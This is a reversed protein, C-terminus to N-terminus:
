QLKVRFFLQPSNTISTTFPKITGDGVLTAATQWNTGALNANTQVLYSPGVETPINLTLTTGSVGGNAITPSTALTLLANSSNTSDIGDGVLVRYYGQNASQFNTITLASNTIGSVNGATITNSNMQWLYNTVGTTTAVGVTLTASAGQAVARSAPQTLIAPPVPPSVSVSGDVALNNIWKVGAGSVSMAAGNKLASSFLVFRDGAALPAAPNLNTVIVKGVGINTLLGSVSVLDNSQGPSLAKNVEIVLNGAVTLGNNLTLTGISAGPALAGGVAVTVPGGIIGTGGLTGNTAVTVAGSGIQGNVQLTGASVTTPGTYTETNSLTLVNTGTKILGLGLGGDSIVGSVITGGTNDVQLTRNTGAGGGDNGQLTLAGSLTLNNTGSIILTLNNSGRLYQIPNAVVRPGGSAFITGSGTLSTTSDNMLVLPGTGIPGADITPPSSSVSNTGFGIAGAAPTTGGSYTNLNNLFTTSNKQMFAGPGSIVGNYTSPSNQYCAWLFTSDSLNLDANYVTSPGSARIRTVNTGSGNSGHNITLTKGATGSFSGNFVVAYADDVPEVVMTFNDAVVFDNNIGSSSSSKVLIDMQGGALTVPGSGLAGLNGLRLNATANSILTGGSYTNANNITLQSSGQYTLSGPGAFSGTGQFTYFISNSVLVSAASLYPGNFNVTGGGGNDDFTVPDGFTFYLGPNGSTDQWSANGNVDWISSGSSWVLNTAPVRMLANTVSNTSYNGAGTVTVYYGNAGSAEDAAGAPSIILTSSTAGSINGGNVLNTGNRHWQYTMNFGDATVLFAGSGGTAVVAPVPQSTISPPNSIVTVSGTVLISAIDITTAGSNKTDRWGVCLADFGSTLYTAGSAVGGFQALVTGSTDPGSYLVNTIALSNVANLTITLVETYVAGATLTVTSSATSGVTTAGSYSSSSSGSTVLDQNNGTTVSQTPRTMIRSNGGSYNIQGVYGIWGQAGGTVGTTATTATGNMGSAVPKVQGSNYLGFGMTGSGTLLGATNTFVVTMQLYDGALVLPVVNTAFLAQVEISGASTQAIGFKVDRNTLLPPNPVWPKSSVLEYSTNTTTPNAPSASNLTSGGSFDDSLFTTANASLALGATLVCLM